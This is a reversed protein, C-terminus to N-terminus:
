AARWVLLFSSGLIVNLALECIAHRTWATGRGHRATLECMGHWAGAMCRYHRTRRSLGCPLRFYRFQQDVLKVSRRKQLSSSSSNEEDM